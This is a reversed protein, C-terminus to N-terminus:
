RLRHRLAKLADEGPRRLVGRGFARRGRAAVAAVALAAEEVSPGSKWLPSELYLAQELLGQAKAVRPDVRREHSKRRPSDLTKRVPFRRRQTDFATLADQITPGTAVFTASGHQVLYAGWLGESM